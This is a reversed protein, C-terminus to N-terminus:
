RAAATSASDGYLRRMSDVYRDYVEGYAEHRAPDPEFLHESRYWARSAEAISAFRGTGAAAFM